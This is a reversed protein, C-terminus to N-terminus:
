PLFAWHEVKGDPLTRDRVRFRKGRFTFYGNKDVGDPFEQSKTPIAHAEGGAFLVRLFVMSRQPGFFLESAFDKFDAAGTGIKSGLDNLAKPVGGLYKWALFGAAGLVALIAIDKVDGLKM